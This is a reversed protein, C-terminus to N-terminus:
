ISVNIKKADSRLIIKAVGSKGPAYGKQEAYGGYKLFHGTIVYHKKDKIIMKDKLSIKFYDTTHHMLEHCNHIISVKGNRRVILTENDTQVCWSLDKYKVKKVQNLRKTLTSSYKKRNISLVYCNNKSIKNCRMGNKICVEQLIDIEKEKASSIQMTNKGTISGDTEIYTDLIINLEKKNANKIISPLIKIDPLIKILQKLKSIDVYINYTRNRKSTLVSEKIRYDLNLKKLLTTLSNIKRPKALHWRIMTKKHHYGGDAIIWILLQLLNKKMYIGSKNIQGSNIMKVLNYKKLLNNASIEELKNTRPKLTLLKHEKTVLLDTNKNNISVWETSEPNLIFNNIKNYELLKTKKNLTLVTDNKAIDFYKKWGDNTLIETKKDM